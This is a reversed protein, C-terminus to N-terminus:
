ISIGYLFVGFVLLLLPIIFLDGASKITISVDSRKRKTVAYRERERKATRFVYHRTLELSFRLCAM